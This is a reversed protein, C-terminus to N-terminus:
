GNYWKEVNEEEFEEDSEEVPCSPQREKPIIDPILEPVNIERFMLENLTTM